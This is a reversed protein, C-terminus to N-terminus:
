NSKVAAAANCSDLGRVERFAAPNKATGDDNLAFAAEAMRAFALPPNSSIREPAELIDHRTSSSDASSTKCGIQSTIGGLDPNM